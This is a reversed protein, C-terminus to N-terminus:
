EEVELSAQTSVLSAVLVLGKDLHIFHYFTYLWWCLCEAFAYKLLVGQVCYLYECPSNATCAICYNSCTSFMEAGKNIIGEVFHEMNRTTVENSLKSKKETM